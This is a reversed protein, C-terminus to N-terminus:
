LENEGHFIYKCHIFTFIYVVGLHIPQLINLSFLFDWFVIYLAIGNKYCEFVFLPIIFVFNLVTTVGATALTSPVCLLVYLM